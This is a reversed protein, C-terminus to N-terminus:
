ESLKLNLRVAGQVCQPAAFPKRFRSVGAIPDRRGCRNKQIVPICRRAATKASHLATQYRVVNPVHPDYTRIRDSRGIKGSDIQNRQRNDSAHSATGVKPGVKPM